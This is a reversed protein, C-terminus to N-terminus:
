FSGCIEKALRGAGNGDIMAQMRNSIDQRLAFDESLRSLKQFLRETFHADGRIDGAFLMLGAEAFSAANRIQNDALVYSVTPLGCACLEFLTTGAASIAADCRLMLFRMDSVQKHLVIQEQGEALREITAADRNMAGLIVHYTVDSKHELLYKVCELTVHEPDAGGASILVDRVPGLETRPPIGQFEKRLLAYQPGLLYRKNQPYTLQDAYLMYNIVVDAPYDFTNQDDIYVLPAERRIATMYNVTVFYSDLMVCYPRYKQLKPLLIPLEDELHDYETLLVECEYGQRKIIDETCSDAAVFVVDQGIDRFADALSLCRMIHGTGIRHNGDARILLM